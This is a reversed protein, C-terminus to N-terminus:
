HVTGDGNTPAESPIFGRAKARQVARHAREIEKVCDETPAGDFQDALGLIATPEGMYLRESELVAQLSNATDRMAAAVKRVLSTAKDEDIKGDRVKQLIRDNVAKGLEVIGPQMSAIAAMNRGLIGRMAGILQGEQVRTQAADQVARKKEDQAALEREKEIRRIHDDLVAPTPEVRHARAIEQEDGILSSIPPASDVKRWGKEWIARATRRDCGAVRGAATHNGPNERYAALLREYLERDYRKAQKGSGRGM